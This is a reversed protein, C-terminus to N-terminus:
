WTRLGLFEGLVFLYCVPRVAVRVKCNIILKSINKSPPAIAMAIVVFPGILFGAKKM